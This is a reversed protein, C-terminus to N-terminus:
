VKPGVNLASFDFVNLCRASNQIISGSNANASKNSLISAASAYTLNQM